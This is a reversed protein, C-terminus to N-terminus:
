VLGIWKKISFYVSQIRKVEKENFKLNEFLILDTKSSLCGFVFGMSKLDKMGFVLCKSSWENLFLSSGLLAWKIENLRQIEKVNWLGQARSFEKFNGKVPITEEKTKQLREVQRSSPKGKDFLLRMEKQKKHLFLFLVLSIGLNEGKFKGKLIDLKKRKLEKKYNTELDTKWFINSDRIHSSNMKEKASKKQKWRFFNLDKRSIESRKNIKWAKLLRIVEQQIVQAAPREDWLTIM